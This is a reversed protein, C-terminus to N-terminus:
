SGLSEGSWGRRLGPQDTELCLTKASVGGSPTCNSAKFGTEGFEVEATTGTILPTYYALVRNNSSDAVYLNGM